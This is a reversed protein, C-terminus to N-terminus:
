PVPVFARQKSEQSLPAVLLYSESESAFGFSFVCGYRKLKPATPFNPKACSNAIAL